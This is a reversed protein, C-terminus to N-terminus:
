LSQEYQERSHKVCSKFERLSVTMMKVANGANHDCYSILVVGGSVFTLNLVNYNQGFFTVQM